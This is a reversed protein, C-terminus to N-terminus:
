FKSQSIPREFSILVLQFKCFDFNEKVGAGEIHFSLISQNLFDLNCKKCSIQKIKGNTGLNVIKESKM